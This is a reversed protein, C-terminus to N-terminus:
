HDYLHCTLFFSSSWVELVSLVDSLDEHYNFYYFHINFVYFINVIDTKRKHSKNAQWVYIYINRSYTYIIEQYYLFLLNIQYELYPVKAQNCFCIFSIINNINKSYTLLLFFELPKNPIIFMISWCFFKKIFTMNIM